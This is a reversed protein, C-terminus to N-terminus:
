YSIEITRLWEAIDGLSADGIDKYGEPGNIYYVPRYPKVANHQLTRCMTHRTIKHQDSDLVLYSATARQLMPRLRLQRGPPLALGLLAAVSHGSAAWLKLADFPGEVLFLPRETLPEVPVYVGGSVAPHTLYKPVMRAHMARATYGIIRRGDSIPLLIRRALRGEECVRLDCRRAVFHPDTYGRSALYDLAEQSESALGFSDWYVNTDGPPPESRPPPQSGNSYREVLREMEVRPVRMQILLKWVSYGTHQGHSRYCFYGGNEENIALHHSPDEGGCWPCAINIHGRSTNAGRDVYEVRLDDFLRRYDISM